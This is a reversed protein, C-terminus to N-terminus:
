NSKPKLVDRTQYYIEDLNFYKIIEKEKYFKVKIPKGSKDNWPYRKVEEGNKFLVALPLQVHIGSTIINYKVAIEPSVDVDIKAYNM